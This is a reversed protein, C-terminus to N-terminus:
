QVKFEKRRLIFMPMDIAVGVAVRITNNDDAGDLVRLKPAYQVGVSWVLPTNILGKKCHYFIGPSLVQSWSVSSPLPTSEDNSLRYSVVAAVDILSLSLTSYKKSKTNFSNFNIGVPVTLGFVFGGNTYRGRVKKDQVGEYGLYGGFYAGIDISNKYRTKYRYSSPPLANSEIVEALETSSKAKSVDAMLSVINRVIEMHKANMRASQTTRTKIIEVLMNVSSQAAASYNKNQLLTYTEFLGEVKEIAVSVKQGNMWKPSIFDNDKLVNKIIDSFMTWYNVAVFNQSNREFSINQNRQFHDLSILVSSLWEGIKKLKTTNTNVDIPEIGLIKNFDPYKKSLLTMYIMFTGPNRLINKEFDQFHVWYKNHSAGTTQTTDFLENNVMDILSVFARIANTQILATDKIVQIIEIFNYRSQIKDTIQLVDSFGKCLENDIYGKSRAYSIINNPLQALDKSFAYKWASGFNPPVSNDWTNLLSYSNKFLSGVIEISDFRKKLNDTFFIIAEQKVRKTLYIALADIMETETPLKFNSLASSHSIQEEKSDESAEVKERVSTVFAEKNYATQNTYAALQETTISLISQQQGANLVAESSFISAFEIKAATLQNNSAIERKDLDVKLKTYLSDIVNGKINEKIKSIENDRLENEKKKLDIEGIRQNIIVVVKDYDATDSKPSFFTDLRLSTDHLFTYYASRRITGNFNLSPNLLYQNSKTTVIDEIVLDPNQRLVQQEKSLGSLSTEKFNKLAETASKIEAEASKIKNYFIVVKKKITSDFNPTEYKNKLNNAIDDVQKLIGKRSLYLNYWEGLKILPSNQLLQDWTYDPSYKLIISAISDNGLGTSAVKKKEWAAIKQADYYANQSIAMTTFSSLILILLLRM